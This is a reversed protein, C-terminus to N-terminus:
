QGGEQYGPLLQGVYQAMMEFVLTSVYNRGRNKEGVAIVANQVVYPVKLRDLEVFNLEVNEQFYRIEEFTLTHSRNSLIDIASCLSMLIMRIRLWRDRWQPPLSKLLM